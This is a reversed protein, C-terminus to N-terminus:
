TTFMVIVCTAYLYYHLCQVETNYSYSFVHHIYICTYVSYERSTFMVFIRPKHLYRHLCLVRTIYIDFCYQLHTHLCDVGMIYIFCFVYQIYLYYHLCLVRTIYIYNRPTHLFTYTNCKRLTFIVFFTAYPFVFTIRLM